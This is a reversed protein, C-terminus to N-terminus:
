LNFTTAMVMMIDREQEENDRGDDDGDGGVCMKTYQEISIMSLHGRAQPM